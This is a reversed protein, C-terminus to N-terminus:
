QEVWRCVDCTKIPEVRKTTLQEFKILTVFGTLLFLVVAVWTGLIVDKKYSQDKNM